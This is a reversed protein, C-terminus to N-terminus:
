MFVFHLEIRYNNYNGDYAVTVLDTCIVCFEITIRMVYAEAM